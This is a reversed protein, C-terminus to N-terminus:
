GTSQYIERGIAGAIAVIVPVGINFLKFFLKEDIENWDLM